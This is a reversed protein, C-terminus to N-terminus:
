GNRSISRCGAAKRNPFPASNLRKGGEDGYLDQPTTHRIVHHDDLIDPHDHPVIKGYQDRPPPKPM